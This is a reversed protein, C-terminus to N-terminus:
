EAYKSLSLKGDAFTYPIRLEDGNKLKVLIVKKRISYTGSLSKKSSDNEETSTRTEIYKGKKFSMEIKYENENYEWTGSLAEEIEDAIDKDIVQIEEAAAKEEETLGDPSITRALALASEIYSVNDLSIEEQQKFDYKGKLTITFTGGNVIDNKAIYFASIFEASSGSSILQGESPSHLPTIEFPKSLADNASFLDYYINTGNLTATAGSGVSSEGQTYYFFDIDQETATVTYIAYLLCDEGTYSNDIYLKIDSINDSQPPVVPKPKCGCVTFIILLILIVSLCKKM